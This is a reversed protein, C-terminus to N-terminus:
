DDRMFWFIYDIAVGQLGSALALARLLVLASVCYAWNCCLFLFLQPNILGLSGLLSLDVFLFFFFPLAAFALALLLPHSLILSIILLSVVVM